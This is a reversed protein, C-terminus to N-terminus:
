QNFNYLAKLDWVTGERTDKVLIGKEELENRIADAKEFDKSKKAEARKSIQAEVDEVDINLKKLYKEKM